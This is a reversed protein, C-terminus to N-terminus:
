CKEATLYISRKGRDEENEWGGKPLNYASLHYKGKSFNVFYTTTMKKSSDNKDVAKQNKREASLLCM